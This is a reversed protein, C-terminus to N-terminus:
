YRKIQLQKDGYTDVNFSDEVKKTKKNYVVINIGRRGQSYDKRKVVIKSREKSIAGGSNLYIAVGDIDIKKYCKGSEVEEAYINDKSFASIYSWRFKKSLTKKLGVKDLIPKLEGFHVSGDDSASMLIVRSDDQLAKTLYNILTNEKIPAATYVKGKQAQSLNFIPHVSFIIDQIEDGDLKIQKSDSKEVTKNEGIWAFNMKNDKLSLSLEYAVKKHRPPDGSVMKSDLIRLEKNVSILINKEIFASKNETMLTDENVLCIVKDGEVKFCLSEGIAKERIISSSNITSLKKLNKQMFEGKDGTIFDTLFKANHTIQAGSLITKAIDIQYFSSKDANLSNKDANTMLWLSRGEKARSIIDMNRHMMHDPMIYIVTNELLSKNKLFSIFDGVLWDTSLAATEMTTKQKAVHELMTEDVFGNPHHTAITSIFMFFPKGSESKAIINKAEHFIDRDSAGKWPTDSQQYKGDFTGDLIHDIKFIKLLDRTGAFDVSNSLHYTSYGCKKLVDGVTVIKCEKSNQFFSNGDGTLYCPFGTFITYLSGATWGSGNHPVMDYYQWNQKLARLNPSIHKNVDRLFAREFSELSIVIINKGGFSATLDEKKTYGQKSKPKTSASIKKPAPEPIENRKQTPKILSSDKVSLTVTSDLATSTKDPLSISVQVGETADNPEFLSEISGEVEEASMEETNVIDNLEKLNSYVGNESLIIILLSVILILYRTHLNKMTSRIFVSAKNTKLQIFLSDTNKIFFNIHTKKDKDTLSIFFFTYPLLILILIFIIIDAIFGDKAALADNLNFHFYYKYDIFSNGLSLASWEM